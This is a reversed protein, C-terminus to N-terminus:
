CETSFRQIELKAQEVQKQGVAKEIRAHVLEASLEMQRRELMTVQKEKETIKLDM